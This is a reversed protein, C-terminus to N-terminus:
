GAKRKKYSIKQAVSDLKFKNRHVLLLLQIMVVMLPSKKYALYKPEWGNAFKSKYERLGQFKYFLNGYRFVLRALKENMFASSHTGVNSLPAMGLSCRKYGNEKAWFLISLFLMDMAGHPREAVHRMLDIILTSNGNVYDSALTAFAIIRGESNQLISVPFRSVYQECFFSVSFCKEERNSLWSDSVQRLEKMIEDSHPPTLIKVQYGQKIFKNRRTRLKAGKKGDLTFDKLNVIAEEGLKFFRYGVEHYYSLFAPSIQYYIPIHGSSASFHEFEKIANALHEKKGIPDGLVVFKNGVKQYPIMVKRNATMYIRKDRLFILHSVHNGGNEKLFPIITELDIDSCSLEKKALM